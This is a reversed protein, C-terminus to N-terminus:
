RRARGHEGFPAVVERPEGAQLQWIQGDPPVGTQDAVELEVLVVRSTPLEDREPDLAGPAVAFGDAPRQALLGQRLVERPERHDLAAVVGRSARGGPRTAEPLERGVGRVEVPQRG